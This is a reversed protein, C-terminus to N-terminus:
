APSYGLMARLAVQNIVVVWLRHIKRPEEGGHPLPVMMVMRSDLKHADCEVGELAQLRPREAGDGARAKPVAGQGGFIERLRQPKESLKHALHQNM